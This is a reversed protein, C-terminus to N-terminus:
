NRCFSLLYVFGSLPESAAINELLNTKVIVFSQKWYAIIIECIQWITLHWIHHITNLIQVIALPKFYKAKYYAFIYM